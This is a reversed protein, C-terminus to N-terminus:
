AKEKRPYLRCNRYGKRGGIETGVMEPTIVTPATDHVTGTSVSYGNLLVKEADGVAILFEAKAVDADEEALKKAKNAAAIRAVISAINEDNSVDIIKGPEAYQNLRIVAQADEPMIPDPEIGDDVSKWFEGIRRKIAAIVPEDRLREIVIGRNGGILAGIFTRPYGSVLMQHQIQMEIHEPAEIDGDDHLIWGDRYALYDVNKIELHAPGDPHNLIEFDFSSGIRESPLRRYDKMPQIQWGQEDAIGHAIAAELRNGWSMRENANFDPAAGSKKRHWLEFRTVYPSMGFLAASETSTVDALRHKLWDAETTFPIVVAQM